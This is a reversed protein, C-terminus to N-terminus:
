RLTSTNAKPINYSPLSYKEGENDYKEALCARYILKDGDCATIGYVHHDNIDPVLEALRDFIAPIGAPVDYTHGYFTTIDKAIEIIKPEM